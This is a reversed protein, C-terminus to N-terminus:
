YRWWDWTNLNFWPDQHTYRGYASWQHQGTRVDQIRVGESLETAMAEDQIRRRLMEREQMFASPDTNEKLAVDVAASAVIFQEWGIIGQVTDGDASLATPIPAYLIEYTGSGPEPQFEITTATARYCTADGTRNPNGRQRHDARPLWIREGSGDVRYVGIIAYLAADLNYSAAGNAAITQTAENRRVNYRALLAWLERYYKNILQNLEADTVFQGATHENDTRQRIQTRLNALTETAM